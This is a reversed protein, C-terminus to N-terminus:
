DEKDVETTRTIMRSSGSLKPAYFFEPWVGSWPSKPRSPEKAANVRETKLKIEQYVKRPKGKTMEYGVVKIEGGSELRRLVAHINSHEPLNASSFQAGKLKAISARILDRITSM